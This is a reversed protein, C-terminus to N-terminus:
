GDYKKKQCFMLYNVSVDHNLSYTKNLLNYHMGKLQSVSLGANRAWHALESPRMFKAYDHTGRPLMKLIYEAGLIAFLYAKPSRNITSFFVAGGPKVLDACAQIVTAPNPVHELLELCTIVDFQQPPQHAYDEATSQRYDITLQSEHLHLRAIELAAASMDIGTVIAGQKVMAEALIGGGCGIDLVKKGKLPCLETIFNLRLPNIDHLTKLDGETDWWHTAAVDFKAIETPDINNM